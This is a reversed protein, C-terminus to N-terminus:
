KDEMAISGFTLGLISVILLNWDGGLCWLLFDCTGIAMVIRGCVRNFIMSAVSPLMGEDYIGSLLILGPDWIGV